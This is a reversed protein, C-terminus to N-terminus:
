ISVPTPYMSGLSYSPSRQVQDPSLGLQKGYLGGQMDQLIGPPSSSPIPHMFAQSLFAGTSEIPGGGKRLRRKMRASKSGGVMNSGTSSYPVPWESQGKVPDYQQAIEPNTFGKGVYDIYGGYGHRPIDSPALYEGARTTYELPAGAIAGGRISSIGKFRRTKTRDGIFADASKKDLDKKFVIHWEKRLRKSMKEHSLKQQMMTDVFAEIAEFSRRLEPITHVGKKQKSKRTLRVM